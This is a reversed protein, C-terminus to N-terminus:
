ASSESKRAAQKIREERRKYYKYEKPKLHAAKSGIKGREMGLIKAVETQLQSLHKPKVFEKRWNQKGDKYTVFNIHAHYNYIPFETGDKKKKLVGEDRHIAIETARVNFKEQIHIAVKKLDEISHDANLNVVCEWRSNELKPIRGGKRKSKSLEYEFIERDSKPHRWYENEKRYQKPLLYSPIDKRLNHESSHSTAKQFNISSKAM